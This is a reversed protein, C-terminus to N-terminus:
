SGNKTGVSGELGQTESEVSNQSINSFDYDYVLLTFYEVYTKVHDRTGSSQGFVQRHPQM